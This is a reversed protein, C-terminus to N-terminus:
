AGCWPSREWRLEVAAGGVHVGQLRDGVPVVQQDDLVGGLRQSRFELATRGPREAHRPGDTEIRGLGEAAQAVAAAGHGVVVGDVLFQQQQAVMPLLFDAVHHQPPQVRPQVVQLRGNQVM